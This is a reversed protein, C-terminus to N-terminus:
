WSTSESLKCEVDYDVNCASWGATATVQVGFGYSAPGATPDLIANTWCRGGDALASCTGTHSFCSLSTPSSCLTPQWAGGAPRFAGVRLTVRQSSTLGTVRCLWYPQYAPDWSSYPRSWIYHDIADGSHFTVV